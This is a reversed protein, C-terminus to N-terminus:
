DNPSTHLGSNKKEKKNNGEIGKKFFINTLGKVQM